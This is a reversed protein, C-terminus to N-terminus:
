HPEVQLVVIFSLHLRAVGKEEPEEVHYSHARSQTDNTMNVRQVPQKKPRGYGQSPRLPRSCEQGLIGGTKQLPKPFINHDEGVRMGEKVLPISSEEGERKGGGERGGSTHKPEPSLRRTHPILHQQAHCPYIDDDEVLGNLFTAWGKEDDGPVLITDRGRDGVRWLRMSKGAHNELTQFILMGM